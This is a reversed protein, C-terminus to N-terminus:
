FLVEQAMRRAAIECYREELEIGIAHCGLNKAARLTTGSGMFPDLIIKPFDAMKICWEMLAVPKQTPHLHEGIEAHRCLGHWLLSIYFTRNLFNTYAMECQSAIFGDPIQKHWVLWGSSPILKDAFNNAGWLIIKQYELFPSPDFPKDDNKFKEKNVIQWKSNKSPHRNPEYNIGYPPDSIVADVGSLAPIIDLCDGHYITIDKDQYYLM